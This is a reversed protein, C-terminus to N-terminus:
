CVVSHTDVIFFQSRERLFLRVKIDNPILDKLLFQTLCFHSTIRGYIFLKNSCTIIISKLLRKAAFPTPGLGSPPGLGM